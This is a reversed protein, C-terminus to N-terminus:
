LNIKINNMTMSYNSKYKYGINRKQLNYVKIDMSCFEIKSKKSYSTTYLIVVTLYMNNIFLQYIIYFNNISLKKAM